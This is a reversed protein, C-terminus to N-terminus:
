EHSNPNRTKHSNPAGQEQERVDKANVKFELNSLSEEVSSRPFSYNAHFLDVIRDVSIGGLEGNHSRYIRM